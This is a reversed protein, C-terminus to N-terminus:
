GGSLRPPREGGWPGADSPSRPRRDRSRPDPRRGPRPPRAVWPGRRWPTSPTRGFPRLVGGGGPHRPRHPPPSPSSLPGHGLTSEPRFVTPCASPGRGGGQPSHLPIDPGYRGRPRPPPPPGLTGPGVSHGVVAGFRKTSASWHKSPFGSFLDVEGKGHGVMRGHGGRLGRRLRRKLGNNKQHEGGRGVDLGGIERLGCEEIVWPTLCSAVARGSPPTAQHM